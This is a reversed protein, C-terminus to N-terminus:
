NLYIKSLHPKLYERLKKLATGMQNEVTKPSIKKYIAIEKYTLGSNRSLLYIDKCKPPLLKIGESHLRSFHKKNIVESKHERENKQIDFDYNNLMQYHKDKFGNLVTNRVATYLYAKISTNINLRNRKKWFEVFVKQVAEEAASKDKTYSLAFRALAIYYQDFLLKFSKKSGSKIEDLLTKENQKM